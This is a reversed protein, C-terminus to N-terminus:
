SVPGGGCHNATGVGVFFVAALVAGEDTTGALETAIQAGASWAFLPRLLARLQRAQWWVAQSLGRWGLSCLGFCCARMDHGGGCHSDSGVGNSFVSAQVAGKGISGAVVTVSQAWAWFRVSTLPVGEGTTGALV